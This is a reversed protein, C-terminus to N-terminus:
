RITIRFAEDLELITLTEGESVEGTWLQVLEHGADDNIGVSFTAQNRLITRPTAKLLTFVIKTAKVEAIGGDLMRERMYKGLVASM